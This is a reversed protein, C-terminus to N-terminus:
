IRCYQSQYDNDNRITRLIMIFVNVILM